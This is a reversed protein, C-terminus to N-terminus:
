HLLTSRCEGVAQYDQVVLTTVLCDTSKLRFNWRERLSLSAIKPGIDRGCEVLALGLSVLMPWRPVTPHFALRGAM